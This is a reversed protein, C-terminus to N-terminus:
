AKPAKLPTALSISAELARQVVLVRQALGVASRHVSLLVRINVDQQCCRSLLCASTSCLCYSCRLCSSACANSVERRRRGARSRNAAGLIQTLSRGRRLYSLGSLHWRQLASGQCNSHAQLSRLLSECAGFRLCRSASLHEPEFEASFTGVTQLSRPNLSPSELEAMCFCLTCM